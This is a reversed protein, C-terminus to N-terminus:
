RYQNFCQYLYAYRELLKRNEPLTQVITQKRQEPPVGAFLKSSFYVKWDQKQLAEASATFETLTSVLKSWRQKEVLTAAKPSEAFRASIQNIVQKAKDVGPVPTLLVSMERLMANLRALALIRDALAQLESRKARLAEAEEIGSSAAEARMLRERVSRADNLLM